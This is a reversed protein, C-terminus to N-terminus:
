KKPPQFVSRAPSPPPQIGRRHAGAGWRVRFAQVDCVAPCVMGSAPCVVCPVVCVGPRQVRQVPRCEIGSRGRRASRLPAPRQLAHLTDPLSCKKPYLINEVCVHILTAQAVQSKWPNMYLIILVRFCPFMSVFDVVIDNCFLLVFVMFVVNFSM